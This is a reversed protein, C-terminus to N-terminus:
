LVSGVDDFAYVVDDFKGADRAIGEPVLRAGLREYFKRADGLRMTRLALNPVGLAKLHSCVAQLLQHGIGKRWLQPRVYLTQLYSQFGGGLDDLVYASSFGQVAGESDCAVFVFSRPDLIASAWQGTRVEVTRADIV